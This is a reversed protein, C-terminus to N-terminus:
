KNKWKNEFNLWAKYQMSDSSKNYAKLEKLNYFEKSLYLKNMKTTRSPNMKIYDNIFNLVMDKSQISWKYYGNQSKDFYINGGLINKYEQVDQLYKNTVSITLQPHNNKFSYNITGDADFFGVFWSNDKTLKIPYIFDIGLLICVKNFQVLRKTNRINGNVANILKIMGTKNTLRYRIAKVGSRLKISGGFKNQIEKLAMEDELAVTIELSVYKKSVIGFYGDGDILGALWQNFKKNMSNNLMKRTTESSRKINDKKLMTNNMMKDQQNNYSMFMKVFLAKFLTSMINTIWKKLLKWCKSFHMDNYMMLMIITAVTQGFFWFLHEYLIPDGGGAVEFFSTNFNRDLLLMTIGASLVPLSLLLLFATIFISWVFLPLKHMTMGNTRMNLTTVIFNIAGLLSSISTLHLAFIALDVSPGSHAQISSLPPYVTWGTGAGSEVLTSTVLCVLGMPLVWFAINNIRPFATDTAGIMLPLLYNGFGGILAPMVLFFIMLVAHGVVLVNFLQSNGHLYQSGPAALELRIILSMATGAMGSFIALMFYLVAIDKANTSYLWRQVM